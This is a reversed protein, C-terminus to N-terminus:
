SCLKSTPKELLVRSWPTLLYTLSNRTNQNKQLFFSFFDSIYCDGCIMNFHSVYGLVHGEYSPQLYKGVSRQLTFYSWRTVVNPAVIFLAM